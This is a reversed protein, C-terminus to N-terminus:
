WNRVKGEAHRVSCAEMFLAAVVLSASILIKCAYILPQIMIMM